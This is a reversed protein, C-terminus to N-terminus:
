PRHSPLTTLPLLHPLLGWPPSLDTVNTNHAAKGTWMSVRSPCCLAVTCYHREFTTGEDALHQKLYPMYKLSDMEVDQDDTLIFIINPRDSAQREEVFAFSYALAAIALLALALTPTLRWWSMTSERKRRSESATPVQDPQDSGSQLLPQTEDM